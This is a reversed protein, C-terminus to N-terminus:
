LKRIPLGKPQGINVALFEELEVIGRMVGQNWQSRYVNLNLPDDNLSRIATVLSEISNDVLVAWGGFLSETLSTRTLVLPTNSSLAECAGSPQVAPMTTLVVAAKSSCLVSHYADTCLFGTLRVNACAAFAMQLDSSLKQVDATLTFTFEPLALATDLILRVPEDYGFSCIFLINRTDRSRTGDGIVQLPDAITFVRSSPFQEKIITGIESNHAILAAARRIFTGNLPLKSWFHQLLANHVDLVYPTRTLIAALAPFPPPAQLIVFSPKFRVLYVTTLILKFFYDLPRLFKSRFVHPFFRAESGLLPALVEARRQYGKWIIFVARTKDSRITALPTYFHTDITVGCARNPKAV